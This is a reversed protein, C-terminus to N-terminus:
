QQVAPFYYTGGPHGVCRSRRPCPRPAGVHGGPHIHQHNCFPCDVVLLLLPRRAPDAMDPSSTPVLRAAAPRLGAPRPEPAPDARPPPEAAAPDLGFLAPMQHGTISPNM